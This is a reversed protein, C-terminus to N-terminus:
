PGAAHRARYRAARIRDGCRTSCWRRRNHDRLLLRSCDPAACEALDERREDGTLAIADTAILALARALPDGAIAIWERALVNRHLTLRSSGPAAATAAAIVDLANDDPARVEILASLLERIGARLEHMREVDVAGLELDSPAGTRETLWRRAPDLDELEDIPGRADDYRTNVLAVAVSQADGPAPGVMNRM